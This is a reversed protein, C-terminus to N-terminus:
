SPSGGDVAWDFLIAEFRMGPEAREVHEPVVLLGDARSLSSLVGAGQAGATRAVWETTALRDLSARVYHRRMGRNDLPETLTVTVTRPGLDHFGLMRRIAPRGFVEFSVAAAVPNGPLGLLPVGGAQGFALPKGPKMRVQWIDIDGEAQLADKVLDFDGVSVGGSTVILDAGEGGRLRARLEDLRDGAIGLEIIEAGWAKAMAALTTTNSDHILGPALATGPRVVEDGTSLLAVKPRRHVRASTEGLAALLGLDPPRLHRGAPLVGSGEEVDEGAHRVNDWERAPHFIRVEGTREPRNGIVGEDTEEFRVVADAGDPLAAGTMIRVS